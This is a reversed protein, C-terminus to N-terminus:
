IHLKVIYDLCLYLCTGSGYLHVLFVHNPIDVGARVQGVALILDARPLWVGHVHRPRAQVLITVWKVLLPFKHFEEILLSLFVSLLLTLESLLPKSLLHFNILSAHM